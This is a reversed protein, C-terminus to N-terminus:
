LRYGFAVKIDFGLKYKDTVTAGATEFKEILDKEFKNKMRIGGLLEGKIFVKKNVSFDFGGGFKGWLSNYDGPKKIKEKEITMSILMKYDIGILPYITLKKSVEFPYKFFVSGNLGTGSMKYINKGEGIEYVEWDGSATFIGMSIEVYDTSIYGFAGKGSVPMIMTGAKEGYVKAEIGGGLDNSIYLGLGASLNTEKQAFISGTVLVCFMLGMLLKKM